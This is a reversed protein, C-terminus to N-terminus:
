SLKPLLVVQGGPPMGVVAVEEGGPRGTRYRFYRYLSSSAVMTDSDTWIGPTELTWTDTIRQQQFATTLDVVTTQARGTAADLSQYALWHGGPSVSGWERAEPLGCARAVVRLSDLPDLRALCTDKSGSGPTALATGVLWRGDATAGFVGVIGDAQARDWSPTYRGQQPVWVDFNDIGGGTASYGLLVASGTYALPYRREPAQTTADSVVAGTGDLHGVALKGGGRWALRQGDPSVVVGGDVKDLLRRASGNPRLLWLQQGDPAFGNVSTTLLWGAATQYGNMPQGQLTSLSLLTGDPTLLHDQNEVIASLGVSPLSPTPSPSPSQSPSTSPVPADTAPPLSPGTGRGYLAVGGAVVAALAVVAAGAALVTHRRRLAAAGAIARTAPETMAPQRSVRERLARRVVDEIETM